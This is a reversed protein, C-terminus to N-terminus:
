DGSTTPVSEPDSVSKTRGRSARAKPKMSQATLPNLAGEAPPEKDGFYAYQLAQNVVTIAEIIPPSADSVDVATMDPHYKHLGIAIVESLTEPDFLNTEDGFKRSIAAIANWTYQLRYEKGGLFIPTVGSIPNEM